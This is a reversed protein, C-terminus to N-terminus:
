VYYGERAVKWVLKVYIVGGNYEMVVAKWSDQSNQIEFSLAKPLNEMDPTM